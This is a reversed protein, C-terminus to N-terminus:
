QQQNHNSTALLKEYAAIKEFVTMKILDLHKQFESDNCIINQCLWDRFVRLNNLNHKTVPTEIEEPTIQSLTNIINTTDEEKLPIMGNALKFRWTIVVLSMLRYNNVVSKDPNPIALFSNAQSEFIIAMSQWLFDNRIYFEQVIKEVKNQLEQNDNLAKQADDQAQKIKNLERENFKFQLLAIIAPWAIGFITLITLLTSFSKDYENQAEKHAKYAVQRMTEKFTEQAIVVRRDSSEPKTTKIVTKVESVKTEGSFPYIVPVQRTIEVTESGVMLKSSCNVTINIDNSYEPQYIVGLILTVLLWVILGILLGTLVWNFAKM